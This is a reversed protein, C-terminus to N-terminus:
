LAADSPAVSQNIRRVTPQLNKGQRFGLVRKREAYIQAKDANSHIPLAVFKLTSITAPLVAPPVSM